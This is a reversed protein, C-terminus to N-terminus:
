AHLAHIHKGQNRKKKLKFIEYTASVENFPYRFECGKKAVYCECGKKAVYCPFGYSQKLMYLTHTSYVCLFLATEGWPPEHLSGRPTCSFRKNLYMALELLATFVLLIPAQPAHLLCVMCRHVGYPTFVM